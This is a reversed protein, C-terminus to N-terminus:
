TEAPSQLSLLAEHLNVNLPMTVKGKEAERSASELLPWPM